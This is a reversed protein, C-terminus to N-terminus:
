GKDGGHGSPPDEEGDHKGREVKGEVDGDAIKGMDDFTCARLFRGLFM